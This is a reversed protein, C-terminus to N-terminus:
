HAFESCAPYSRKRESIFSSVDSPRYRYTPRTGLGINVFPLMGRAVYERVQRTSMGLREAAQPLAILNDNAPFTM